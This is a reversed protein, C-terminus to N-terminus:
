NVKKIECGPYGPVEVDATLNKIRKKMFEVLDENGMVIHYKLREKLVELVLAQNIRTNM